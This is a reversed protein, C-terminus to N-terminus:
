AHISIPLNKLIRLATDDRFHIDSQSRSLRLEPFRQIITGIAVQGELRALPAGICHHIGHGFQVHAIADRHPDLNPDDGFVRPDANASDLDLVVKQGEHILVEGLRLDKNAYRLNVIGPGIFRLLEEIAPKILDPQRRLADPQRGPWLMTDTWTIFDHRDGSPVGLLECIVQVPLPVAFETVLDAQGRAAIDDLLTDTIQQVRPRLAEVRRATFERALLQRLRTHEPPNSGLLTNKFLGSMPSHLGRSIAFATPPSMDPHALCTRVDDHQSVLWAEEDPLWRPPAPRGLEGTLAHVDILSIGGSPPTAPDTM